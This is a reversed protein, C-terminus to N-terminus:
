EVPVLDQGCAPAAYQDGPVFCPNGLGSIPGTLRTIGPAGKLMGIEPVVVRHAVNQSADASTLHFKEVLANLLAPSHSQAVTGCEGIDLPDLQEGPFCGRAEIRIPEARHQNILCPQTHGTIGDELSHLSVIDLRPRHEKRHMQLFREEPCFTKAACHGFVDGASPDAQRAGTRKGRFLLIQDDRHYPLGNSCASFFLGCVSAAVIGLRVAFAYLVVRWREHELGPPHRNRLLRPQCNPNLITWVMKRQPIMCSNRLRAVSRARDTGISSIAAGRMASQARAIRIKM